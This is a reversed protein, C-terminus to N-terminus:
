LRPAAILLPDLGPIGDAVRRESLSGIRSVHIVVITLLGGLVLCLAGNAQHLTAIEASKNSWVTAAGLIGQLCILGFWLDVWRVILSGPGARKRAVLCCYAVLGLIIFAVFRHIMHLLIQNGTIPNFERPDLRNRNVEKLFASDTSPWVKGYALPFDPVALGAHQHRMSAGLILQLLIVLTVGLFLSRLSNTDPARRLDPIRQWFRSTVLAISCILLFFLQAITGHVIGLEDKFLTVRLGGLVGQVLVLSYGLLAWWRLPRRATRIKFLCFLVILLAVSALAIFMPQTRVGILGMGLVIWALGLWKGGGSTERGWIWGAMIMTLLGVLSALLRHSHEYLVGGVWQSIPFLFMNEGYTTPWDPVAMGAGKSTVMGGLAILALTVVGTAVAFRHLWVPQREETM